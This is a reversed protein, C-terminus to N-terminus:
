RRRPPANRPAVVPCAPRWHGAVWHRRPGHGVWRGSVWVAHANPRAPPRNPGYDRGHNPHSWYGRHRRTQPVWTWAVSVTPTVVVATPRAHSKARSHADVAPVTLMAILISYMM